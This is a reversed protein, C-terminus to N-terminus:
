KAKVCGNVRVTTRSSKRTQTNTGGERYNRLLQRFPAYFQHPEWVRPDLIHIRRDNLGDRRMLRGIGQKFELAARDREATKMWELRAQHTTSRNTGFPLNCIALDTLLLDHSAQDDKYRDDRIDVGTWAGGTGVWVPRVGRKAATVFDNKAARVGRKRDQKILREKPFGLNIMAEGILNARDYSSTLALVGGKGTRDAEMIAKAVATAWALGKESVTRVKSEGTGEDFIDSPPLLMANGRGTAWLQPSYLWPQTISPTATVRGMPVGLQNAIFGVRPIGDETPLALTASLAVGCEVRSWIRELLFRVTRPGTHISPFRRRPSFNVYVTEQGSTGVNTAVTMLPALLGKASPCAKAIKVCEKRMELFPAIIAERASQSYDPQEPHESIVLRDKAGPRRGMNVLVAEINILNSAIKEASGKCKCATFMPMKDRIERALIRGIVDSTRLAAVNAEMTHAEDVFLSGYAPLIGERTDDDGLGESIREGIRERVRKLTQEMRSVDLKKDSGRAKAIARSLSQEQKRMEALSSGKRLADLGLMAHTCVVVDAGRAMTRLRQYISQAPCEDDKDESLLVEAVPFAPAATSLDERLWAMGNVSAHLSTTSAGPTQPGGADLWAQAAEIDAVGDPNQIMDLLKAPDVFSSRGIIPAIRPMAAIGLDPARLSTYESLAQSLIELTPVAFVASKGTRSTYRAAMALAARTKGVGTGAEQFVISGQPADVDLDESASAMELREGSTVLPPQAMARECQEVLREQEVRGLRLPMPKSTRLANEQAHRISAHLLQAIYISMPMDNPRGSLAALVQGNLYATIKTNETAGLELPAPPLRDRAAQLAGEIAWERLRPLASAPILRSPITISVNM